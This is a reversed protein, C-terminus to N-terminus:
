RVGGAPAPVRQPVGGDLPDPASPARPPAGGPPLGGDLVESATAPGPYAVRLDVETHGLGHQRILLQKLSRLDAARALGVCGATGTSGGDEHLFFGGRAGLVVVSFDGWLGPHLRWGGIGWGAGDRPTKEFDMTASLELEYTEAPIPGADPVHQYRPQRYDISPDLDTRGGKILELVHPAGPPLGSMAAFEAIVRGDLESVVRLKSGDFTLAIPEASPSLRKNLLEKRIIEIVKPKTAEDISAHTEAHKPVNQIETAASEAVNEGGAQGWNTQPNNTWFNVNRHVNPPVTRDVGINQFTAADVTVLLDVTYTDRLADALEIATDGGMSYGYIILKGRQQGDVVRMHKEIFAKALNRADEDADTSYGQRAIKVTASEVGSTVGQLIANVVNAETEPIVGGGDEWPANFGEFAVVVHQVTVTVTAQKGKGKAKKKGGAM